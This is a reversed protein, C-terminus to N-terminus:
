LYWPSVDMMGFPVWLAKKRMAPTLMENTLLRNKRTKKFISRMRREYDRVKNWKRKEDVNQSRAIIVSRQCIGLHRMEFQKYLKGLHWFPMGLFQENSTWKFIWVHLLTCSIIHAFEYQEHSISRGDTGPNRGEQPYLFVSALLYEFIHHMSLDSEWM